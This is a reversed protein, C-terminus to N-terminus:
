FRPKALYGTRAVHPRDVLCMFLSLRGFPSELNQSFGVPLSLAVAMAAEASFVMDQATPVRLANWTGRLSLLPPPTPRTGDSLRGTVAPINPPPRSGFARPM